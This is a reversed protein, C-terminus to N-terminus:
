ITFKDVLVGLHEANEALRRSAQNVDASASAAQENGKAIEQTGAATQQIIASTSDIARNIEQMAILVNRINSSVKQTLGSVMDADDKYQSGINVMMDYDKVVDDNIFQLLSNANNVLNAISSQVQKTLEQIGTVAEASDEALKRVEEAVVAFGRGQEGARAAEIAANLALLNTQNAIEAINEALGSIEDVVRAEEIAQLVKNKIENYMSIAGAQSSQSAQQVKLARDEIKKAEAHGNDADKNVQLLNANIDQSSANIEEMAASVEQMGASIEETSASAQQMSSAINESSALLEESSSALENTSSSIDGVMSRISKTMQDLAVALEGLEDPRSLFKEPMENTFDGEGMIRAHESTTKISRGILRATNYNAAMGIILMIITIFIITKRTKALPSMLANTQSVVAISWETGDVPAFGMENQIGQYTYSGYGTEGKVMRKELAVLQGLDPDNNLSVFDNNMNRVLEYRPHAIITGQKDIMFAYSEKGFKIQNTLACLKQADYSALLVGVIKNHANRIPAVVAIVVNKDSKNVIPDSIYNKGQLATKFYNRDSINAAKGSIQKMNGDLTAVGVDLYGMENQLNQLVPKQTTWNMKRIDANKATSDVVAIHKELGASVLAAGDQANDPLTENIMTQLSSKTQLYAGIGIVLSLVLIVIGGYFMFKTGISKM